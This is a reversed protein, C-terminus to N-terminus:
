TRSAIMRGYMGRIVDEGVSREGAAARARDREICMELPVDTMDWVVCPVGLTWAIGGLVRRYDERLNTDDCVVSWGLALLLDVAKWQFASVAEEHEPLGTWGGFMMARLDDRNVRTRAASDEEVWARARTTKGSGPLGITLILQNTM